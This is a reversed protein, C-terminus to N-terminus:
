QAFAGLTPVETISVPRGEYDKGGNHPIVKGANRAPSGPQLKFGLPRSEGIPGVFAPDLSLGNTNNGGEPNDPLTGVGIFDNNYFRLVQGARNSLKMAPGSNVVINNAWEVEVGPSNDNQFFTVTNKGDNYITNNYIKNGKSSGPCVQFLRVKDNYSVNYRMITNNTVAGSYPCLLLLGGANNHSYNYQFLTNIAGGDADFSMGDHSNGGGSVDNYQVTVDQTNFAWIGANNEKSRLQFGTLTNYEILAGQVTDIKIGDGAISSLKNRSVVVGTSPTWPGVGSTDQQGVEARKNWLSKFYIGSRDVDYIINNDITLKDFYSPSNTGMISILIGASGTIKKIDGGRVNHIVMNKVTVNKAEGYDALRLQVGNRETGPSSANIVELDQLTVNAMNDLLIADHAGNGDIVPMKGAGSKGIIVPQSESGGSGSPKFSGKCVSGSAFFVKDGPKLIQKNIQVLSTFPAATSGDGSLKDQCAVYYDSAMVTCPLAMMGIVLFGGRQYKSRCM